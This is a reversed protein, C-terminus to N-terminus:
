IRLRSDFAAAVRAQRRLSRRSVVGVAGALLANSAAININGSAIGAVSSVAFLATAAGGFAIVIKEGAGIQRFDNRVRTFSERAKRWLSQIPM